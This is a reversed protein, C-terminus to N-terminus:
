GARPLENVLDRGRLRTLVEGYTAIEHESHRHGVILPHDHEIDVAKDISRDKGVFSRPADRVASENVLYHM